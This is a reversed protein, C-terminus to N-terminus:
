KHATWEGIKRVPNILFIGYGEGTGSSEAFIADGEVHLKGKMLIDYKAGNVPNAMTGTITMETSTFEIDVSDIEISFEESKVNGDEDTYTSSATIEVPGSMEWNQQNVVLTGTGTAKVYGYTSSEYDITGTFNWTGLYPNAFGYNNAFVIFDPGDIKGDATGEQSYIKAWIGTYSKSAPNELSSIDYIENYGPSGVANGYSQAFPIFDFGEVQGDGTFDGLLKPETGNSEYYSGNIDWIKFSSILDTENMGRIRLIEEGRIMKSTKALAILTKGDVHKIIKLYNYPVIITSMDLAKDILLEIADAESRLIFVMSNDDFKTEFAVEEYRM